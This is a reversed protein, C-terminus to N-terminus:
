RYHEKIEDALDQMITKLMPPSEITVANTFMLLWRALSELFGTMFYLCIKENMEEQKVFGYYYKTNGIFPAVEKDFLVTAEQLPVPAGAFNKIYDQLSEYSRNVFQEDKLQLRQIRSVKFDRYGNRLRCWAIVHWGQSYHWLGIPEVLRETLENQYNSQYHIFLVKKEIIAKQLASLHQDAIETIDKHPSATVAVNHELLEMQEKETSRLVAKIKYLANDFQKQVSKDTMQGTIKAGILLAAAEETTFMVPPLRYGEMISYGSGAEGLVPVGTEELAKIDRYVTRISIGFRDAIAQATVRKKSQLHTLIAHLRDIRNVAKLKLISLYAAAKHQNAYFSFVAIFLYL